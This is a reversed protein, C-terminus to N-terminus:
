LLGTDNYMRPPYEQPQQQQAVLARPPPGPPARPGGGGPRRPAGPPPPPRSRREDTKRQEAALLKLRTHTTDSKSKLQRREKDTCHESLPLNAGADFVAKAAELFQEATLDDPHRALSPPQVTSKSLKVLCQGLRYYAKAWTPFLDRAKSADQLAGDLDDTKTRVLSRNSLIRAQTENIERLVEARTAGPTNEFDATKIAYARALDLAVMSSNYMDGAALHNGKGFEANGLQRYADSRAMQEAFAGMATDADAADGDAGAGELLPIDALEDLAASMVADAGGLAGAGLHLLDDSGPGLAADLPLPAIGGDGGVGGDLGDRGDPAAAAAAALSLDEMGQLFPDGLDANADM